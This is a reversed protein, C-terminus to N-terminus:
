RFWAPKPAPNSIGTKADPDPASNVWSASLAPAAAPQWACPPTSFVPRSPPSPRRPVGLPLVPFCPPRDLGRLAPAEPRDKWRQKKRAPTPEVGWGAVTGGAGEVSLSGCLEKLDPDSDMGAHAQTHDTHESPCPPRPPPHEGSRSSPPRHPQGPVRGTAPQCSLGPLAAIVCSSSLPGFSFPLGALCSVLKRRGISTPARVAPCPTRWPTSSQLAPLHDGLRLMGQVGLSVPLLLRLLPPASLRPSGGGGGTGEGAM